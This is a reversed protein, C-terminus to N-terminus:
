LEGKETSGLVAEKMKEYFGAGSDSAAKGAHKAAGTAESVIDEVSQPATQAAQGAADGAESARAAADDTSYRAYEAVNKVKRDVISSGRAAASSASGAAGRAASKVSDTAGSVRDTVGSAVVKVSETAAAGTDVVNEVSRKGFEYVGEAAGKACNYMGEFGGQAAEYAGSASDYVKEVIPIQRLSPVSARKAAIILVGNLLYAHISGPDADNPFTIQADIAREICPVKQAGFIDLWTYQGQVKEGGTETGGSGGCQHEGEVSILRGDVSINLENRHFGPVDIHATYSEDSKELQFDPGARRRLAELDGFYHSIIKAFDDSSQSIDGRAAKMYSDQEPSSM